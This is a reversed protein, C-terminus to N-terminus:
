NGVSTFLGVVYVCMGGGMRLCGRWRGWVRWGWVLSDLSGFAFVTLGTCLFWCM